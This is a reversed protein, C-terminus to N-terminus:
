NWDLREMTNMGTSIGNTAYGDLTFFSYQVTRTGCDNGTDDDTGDTDSGLWLCSDNTAWKMATHYDTTTNAVLDPTDYLTAPYGWTGTFAGGSYCASTGSVSSLPTANPTNGSPDQTLNSQYIGVEGWCSNGCFDWTSSEVAILNTVTPCGPNNVVKGDHVNFYDKSGAPSGVKWITGDMVGDDRLGFCISPCCIGSQVITASATNTLKIKPKGNKKLDLNDAFFAKMTITAGVASCPATGDLQGLNPIPIVAFNRLGTQLVFAPLPLFIPGIVLGQLYKTPNATDSSWFQTAITTGGKINQPGQSGNLLFLGGNPTAPSGALRIMWNLRTFPYSSPTAYNDSTWFSHRPGTHSSGNSNFLDTCLWTGTDGTPMAVAAHIGGSTPATVDPLDYTTFGQCYPSGASPGGTPNTLISLPNAIDPTRGSADLALNDGCLAVYGWSASGLSVYTQIAVGFITAGAADTNFDVDFGEGAASPYSIKYSTEAVGDDEVTQNLFNSISSPITQATAAAAVIGFAGVTAFWKRM